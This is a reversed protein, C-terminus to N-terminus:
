FVLPELKGSLTVTVKGEQDPRGFLRLAKVLDRQSRDRAGFSGTFEYLGDPTLRLTGEAQLPGGGDSLIGEIAEDVTSWETKLDGLRVNQPSSVVAGSWVINGDLAHIRGQHLTAKKLNAVVLGDAQVGFDNLFDAFLQAPFSAEVNSLIQRQRGLSAVGHATGREVQMRFVARLRGMLLAMPKLSWDVKQVPFGNIVL